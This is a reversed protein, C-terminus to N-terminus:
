AIESAIGLLLTFIALLFLRIDFGGSQKEQLGVVYAALVFIASIIEAFIM